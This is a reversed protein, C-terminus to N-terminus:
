ERTGGRLSLKPKLEELFVLAAFAGAGNVLHERSRKIARFAGDRSAHLIIGRDVRIGRVRELLGSYAGLQVTHKPKVKSSTKIDAIVYNGSEDTFLLDYTGGIQMVEDVVPTECSHLTLGSTSYWELIQEVLAAVTLDHIEVEGGTLRQAVASHVLTGIAVAQNAIAMPANHDGTKAAEWAYWKALSEADWGLNRAIIETVSRIGDGYGPM